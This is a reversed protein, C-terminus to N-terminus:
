AELSLCVGLKHANDGLRTTDFMGGVAVKVGERLVQSYVMSLVGANNVKAKVFAGSDLQIKSGCELAVGGNSPSKSSPTSATDYTAKAGAEVGESVRHFYGVSFVSMQQAAHLTVAYEGQAYGLAASYKGVRGDLINYQVEGGAVVGEAGVVVDASVLPGKFVDVGVCSSLYSQRYESSLRANKAGSVPLLSGAFKMTMGKVLGESVEADVALVNATSWSESVTM